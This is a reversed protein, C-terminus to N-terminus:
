HAIEKEYQDIQNFLENIEEAVEESGPLRWVVTGQGAADAYVQRLKLAKLSPIGLTDATELLERSLRYNSQVKNPLLFTKPPGGTVAFM